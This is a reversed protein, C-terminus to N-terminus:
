LYRPFMEHQHARYLVSITHNEKLSTLVWNLTVETCDSIETKNRLCIQQGNSFKQCQLQLDQGKDLPFTQFDLPLAKKKQM